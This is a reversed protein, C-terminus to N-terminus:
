VKKVHKPENNLAKLLRKRITKPLDNLAGSGKDLMKLTNGNAKGEARFKGLEQVYDFLIPKIVREYYEKDVEYAHIKSSPKYANGYFGFSDKKGLVLMLEKDLQRKEPKCFYMRHFRVLFPKTLACNDKYIKCISQWKIRIQDDLVALSHVDKNLRLALHLHLLKKQCIEIKYFFWLSPYIAKLKAAFRNLWLKVTAISSDTMKLESNLSVFYKPNKDLGCLITNMKTYRRTVRHYQKQNTLVEYCHSDPHPKKKGSCEDKFTCSSCSEDIMIQRDKEHDPNFEKATIMTYFALRKPSMLIKYKQTDSNMASEMANLLIGTIPTNVSYNSM